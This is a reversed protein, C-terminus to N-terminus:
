LQESYVPVAFGKLTDFWKANPTKEAITLFALYPASIEGLRGSSLSLKQLEFEYSKERFETFVKKNEIDVSKAALLFYGQPASIKSWLLADEKLKKCAAIKQSPITWLYDSLPHHEDISFKKAASIIKQYQLSIPLSESGLHNLKAEDILTYLKRGLAPLRRESIDASNKNESTQSRLVKDTHIYRHECFFKTEPFPKYKKKQLNGNNENREASARYFECSLNHEGFRPIKRLSLTGSSHLGVTLLPPPVRTECDCALWYGSNKVNMLLSNANQYDLRKLNQNGKIFVESLLIRENKLLEKIHQIHNDSQKLKKIIWM